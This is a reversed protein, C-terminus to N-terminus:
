VKFKKTMEDLKEVLANLNEISSAIQEASASQEQTSAAVEETNAATSQSIAEIKNVLETVSTSREKVEFSISELNKFMKETENITNIINEFSKSVKDVVEQGRSAENVSGEIAEITKRSKEQTENVLATISEASKMSEDSLKRVEEAVVAFGRGAEGARAAEIAANLALLSTQGAIGNIVDVIGSIRESAEMLERITASSLLASERISSIQRNMEDMDGRSKESVDVMLNTSDKINEVSKVMINIKDTMLDVYEKIRGTMVVQDSAGEAVSETSKAIQQAVSSSQEGAAALEEGYAALEHTTSAINKIIEKLSGSMSSFSAALKGIEDKSKIDINVTLDGSAVRESADSLFMIPKTLKMTVFYMLAAALIFIILSIISSRIIIGKVANDIPKVSLGINVAGIIRGDMSKLPMIVDYVNMKRDKSYYIGSYNKGDNIATKTGNDEFKMGIRSSDSHAVATFSKDLVLAYVINSDKVLSQLTKQEDYNMKMGEVYDATIGVQIYRNQGPVRIAAYKYSKNDVTSKRIKEAIKDTKGKIIDQIAHDEKYIYGINDPLNSFIIIGKDDVINIEAIGSNKSIGQLVANSPNSISAISYASHYLDNELIKDMDDAMFGKQQIQNTIQEAIVMGQAKMENYLSDKTNKISIGTVAVITIFICVTVLFTIKVAISKWNFKM